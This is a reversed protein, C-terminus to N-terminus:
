TAIKALIETERTVTLFKAPLMWHGGFLLCPIGVAHVHLCHPATVQDLFTRLIWTGREAQPPIM